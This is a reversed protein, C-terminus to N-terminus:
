LNKDATLREFFIGDWRTVSAASPLMTNCCLQAVHPFGLEMGSYVAARQFSCFNSRIVTKEFWCYFITQTRWTHYDLEICLCSQLTAHTEIKFEAMLCGVPSRISHGWGMQAQYGTVLASTTGDESSQPFSHKSYSNRSSTTGASFTWGLTSQKKARGDFSYFSILNSIKSFINLM